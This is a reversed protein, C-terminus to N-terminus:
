GKIIQPIDGTSKAWRGGNKEIMEGIRHLSKIQPATFSAGQDEEWFCFVTKHPNKNSDEVLESINEFDDMKPTILYIHYKSQAKQDMEEEYTRRSRPKDTPDFCEFGVKQLEPILQTRWQSGNETGDLFVKEM